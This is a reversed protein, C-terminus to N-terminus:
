PLLFRKGRSLVFHGVAPVHQGVFAGLKGHATITQERKRAAVADIMVKAARNTPWLLMRLPDGRRRDFPSQNVVELESEIFGPNITTCSVGSGHLEVSLTQGIARVAYKSACYAGMGPVSILGAASGLLVLSGGQVKLHPISYRATVALGVVNVDLQRRWDEASLKEITGLVSVGANAVAVDLRGLSEVVQEVAREVSPEDTVDCPIALATGGNVEIEGVVLGLRDRRRGSIAVTAGEKAFALALERGIGGGGGTIWVVQNEFRTAM